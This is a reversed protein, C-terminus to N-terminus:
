NRTSGPLRFQFRLVAGAGIPNCDWGELTDFTGDQYIRKSKISINYNQKIDDGEATWMAWDLDRDTMTMPTSATGTLSIEESLPENGKTTYVLLNEMKFGSVKTSSSDFTINLSGKNTYGPFLSGGAVNENWVIVFTNGSWSGNTWGKGSSLSRDFPWSPAQGTKSNKWFPRLGLFFEAADSKKVDFPPLKGIRFTDYGILNL